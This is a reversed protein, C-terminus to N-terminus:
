KKAKAPDVAAPKITAFCKAPNAMAEAAACTMTQTFNRANFYDRCGVSVPPQMDPVECKVFESIAVSKMAGMAKACREEVKVQWEPKPAPKKDEEEKEPPGFWSDLDKGACGVKTKGNTTEYQVAPQKRCMPSGEPCRLRVHFHSKHGGLPRIKKLWSPNDEAKEFNDTYYKECLKRKIAPSVFIREVEDAQAAARLLEMYDDKYNEEVIRAQMNGGENEPPDYKAIENKIQEEESWSNREELSLTKNKPIFRYFIDVDLGVRHSSHGEAMRGGMPCSSDGVFLKGWGKNVSTESLKEVYRILSSHGYQHNRRTNALEWTNTSIEFPTAGLICGATAYFGIVEEKHRSPVPISESTGDAPMKFPADDPIDFSGDALATLPLLVAIIWM